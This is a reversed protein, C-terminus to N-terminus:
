RFLRVISRLAPRLPGLAAHFALHWSSKRLPASRLVRWAHARADAYRRQQLAAWAWRSRNVNVLVNTWQALHPPLPLGRRQYAQRLIERANRAQEESRRAGVSGEHERYRMLYLPVNALTGVECLRLFLDLDQASSFEERYCGIRNLQDRRMFSGYHPMATSDGNYLRDRIQQDTIDPKSRDREEGSATVHIVLCGVSACDPHDRMYNLQEQFRCPDAIDDGDMRAIYEGRAIALGANLAKTVGANSQSLIRIRSDRGAYEELVQLSADTSGDNVCVFEFDGFSQNLISEIAEPLYPGANYVPMVVSIVPTKQAAPMSVCPQPFLSM